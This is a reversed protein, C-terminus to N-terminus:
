EQELLNGSTRSREKGYILSKAIIRLCWPREGKYPAFADSEEGYLIEFGSTMLKEKFQEFSHFRRYHAPAHDTSAYSENKENVYTALSDKLTRCEIAIFNCHCRAFDIVKNEVELPVSHMSFRSYLLDYNGELNEMSEQHFTVNSTNSPKWATDYADVKCREGWHYADRGNGSGVEVVTSVQKSSFYKEVFIAFLSPELPVDHSNYVTKWYIKEAAM